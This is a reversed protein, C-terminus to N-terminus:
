SRSVEVNLQATGTDTRVYIQALPVSNDREDSRYTRSIGSPLVYGCNSPSVVGSPNSPGGGVRINVSNGPDNQLTIERGRAPTSPDVALMMALLNQPTTTVTLSM